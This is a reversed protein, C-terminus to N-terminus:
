ALRPPRKLLYAPAPPSHGPIFLPQQTMACDPIVAHGATGTMCHSNGICDTTCDAMDSNTDQTCDEHSSEQSAHHSTDFIADLGAAAVGGASLALVLCLYALRVMFRRM